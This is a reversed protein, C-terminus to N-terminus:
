EYPNYGVENCQAVFEAMIPEFEEESVGEFGASGEMHWYHNTWSGDTYQTALVSFIPEDDPISLCDILRRYKSYNEHYAGYETTDFIIAQNRYWRDRRYGRQEGWTQQVWPAYSEDAQLLAALSSKGFTNPSVWNYEGVSQYYWRPRTFSNGSSVKWLHCLIAAAFPKFGISRLKRYTRGYEYHALNRALFLTMMVKDAPVGRVPVRIVGLLPHSSGKLWPIDKFLKSMEEYYRRKFLGQDDQPDEPDKWYEKSPEGYFQIFSARDSNSHMDRLDQSSLGLRTATSQRIGGSPYNSEAFAGFCPGQMPMRRNDIYVVDYQVGM